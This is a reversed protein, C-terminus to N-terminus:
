ASLIYKVPTWPGKLEIRRSFGAIADVWIGIVVDLSRDKIGTERGAGFPVVVFVAAGAVVSTRAFAM